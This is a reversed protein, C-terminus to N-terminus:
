RANREAPSNAADSLAAAVDTAQALVARDKPAEWALQLAYADIEADSADTGHAEFYRAAQAQYPRGALALRELAAAIRRHTLPIERPAPAAPRPDTEIVQLMPPQTPRAQDPGAAGDIARLSPPEAQEQADEADMAACLVDALDGEAWSQLYRRLNRVPKGARAARERAVAITHAIVFDTLGDGYRGRLYRAAEREQASQSIKKTKQLEDERTKQNTGSFGYGTRGPFVGTEAPGAPEQSDTDPAVQASADKGQERGTGSFGSGTHGASVDTEAARASEQSDPIPEDADRDGDSGQPYGDGAGHPYDYVTVETVMQGNPKRYTRRELYGAAELEEQARSVADRGERTGKALEAASAPGRGDKHSLMRCLLGRARDSLRPDRLVGNPIRAWGDRKLRVVKVSM